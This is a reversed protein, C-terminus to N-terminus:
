TTNKHPLKEIKRTTKKFTFSYKFIRNIPYILFYCIYLTTSFVPFSRLTHIEIIHCWIIKLNTKGLKNKIIIVSLKGSLNM